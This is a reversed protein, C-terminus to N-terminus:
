LGEDDKSQRLDMGIDLYHWIVRNIFQILTDSKHQAPFFNKCKLYFDSLDDDVKCHEATFLEYEDGQMFNLEIESVEEFSNKTKEIYIWRDHDKDWVHDTTHKTFHAM